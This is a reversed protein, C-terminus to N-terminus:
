RALRRVGAAAFAGISGATITVLGVLAYGWWGGLSSRPVGFIRNYIEAAVITGGLLLGWRWPRRPDILALIAGAMILFVLEVGTDDTRLDYRALFLCLVAAVLWSATTRLPFSTIPM